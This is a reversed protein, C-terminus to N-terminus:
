LDGLSGALKHAERLARDRLEPGLGDTLVALAADELVSVQESFPGKFREWLGALAASAAQEMGTAGSSDADSM